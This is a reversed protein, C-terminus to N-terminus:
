KRRGRGRGGLSKEGEESASICVFLAIFKFVLKLRGYPVTIFPVSALWSLLLLVRIHAHRGVQTREM